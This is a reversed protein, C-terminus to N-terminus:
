SAGGPRRGKSNLGIPEPRPSETPPVPDPSVLAKLRLAADAAICAGETLEVIRRVTDPHPGEPRALAQGVLSSIEHLVPQRMAVVRSPGGFGLDDGAAQVYPPYGPYAENM